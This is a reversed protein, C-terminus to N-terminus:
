NSMCWKWKPSTPGPASVETTPSWTQANRHQKPWPKMAALLLVRKRLWIWLCSIRKFSLNNFHMDKLLFIISKVHNRIIHVESLNGKTIKFIPVSPTKKVQRCKQLICIYKCPKLFILMMRHTTVSFLDLLLQQFYVLRLQFVVFCGVKLPDELNYCNKFLSSFRFISVYILRQNGQGPIIM